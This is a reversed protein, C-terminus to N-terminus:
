NNNNRKKSWKHLVSTIFFLVGVPGILISLLFLPLYVVYVLKQAYNLRDSQKEFYANLKFGIVIDFMLKAFPFLIFSAISINLSSMDQDNLYFLLFLFITIILSLLYNKMFYDQNIQNTYSDMKETIKSKPVDAIDFDPSTINDLAYFLLDRETMKIQNVHIGFLSFKGGMTGVANFKRQMNSMEKKYKEEDYLIIEVFTLTNYQAHVTRIRLRDVDGWKIPTSNKTDPNMIIEEETLVLYPVPKIIRMIFIPISLTFLIAIFGSLLSTMYNEEKLTIYCIAVSGVIFVTGFIIFLINKIKSPYFYLIRPKKEKM